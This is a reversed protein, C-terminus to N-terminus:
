RRRRGGAVARLRAGLGAARDAGDTGEDAAVGSQELRDRRRARAEDTHAMREELVAALAQVSAEAV